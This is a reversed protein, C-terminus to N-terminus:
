SSASLALVTTVLRCGVHRAAIAFVLYQIIFLSAAWSAELPTLMSLAWGLLVALSGLVSITALDRFLLFVRHTGSVAPENQVSRYLGYWTTNQKRPDHPITGIRNKLKGLDIRPDSPALVTFARHGPLAHKLKWFVLVDRFTSPVIGALLTALVPGVVVAVVGKDAIAHALGSAGAQFISDGALLASLLVADLVIMAWIKPTNSDKLSTEASM